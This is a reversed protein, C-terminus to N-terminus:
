CTWYIYKGDGILDNFVISTKYSLIERTFNMILEFSMHIYKDEKREVIASFAENCVM